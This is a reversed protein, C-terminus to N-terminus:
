AKRCCLATWSGKEKVTVVKFGSRTLSQIVEDRRENLIGSAIFIGQDKMFNGVTKGLIMIVDAIINAVIVDARVGKMPEIDTLDGHYVEVVQDVHNKAANEKAVSITNADLDTCIVRQAGLKAATIGLIGSGAGIDCVLDGKKVTDELFEMCMSTTEHTGTGFAMGPDIDIRIDDPRSEMQIWSPVILIHRGLRHPKFYKKWANRWESEIVLKTEILGSGVPLHEKITDLHHRIKLVLDEVSKADPYDEISFYARVTTDGEQLKKMLEEDIYDWATPDQKHSLIDAPDFIEVGGCGMGMLADSLAEVADSTTHITIQHYDM